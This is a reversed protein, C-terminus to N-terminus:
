WFASTGFHDYYAAEVTNRGSLFGHNYLPQTRLLSMTEQIKRRRSRYASFFIIKNWGFQIKSNYKGL